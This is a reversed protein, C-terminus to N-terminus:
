RRNNLQQNAQNVQNVQSNIGQNAQDINQLLSNTSIEPFALLTLNMTFQKYFADYAAEFMFDHLDKRVVLKFPIVLAAWEEGNQPLFTPQLAFQLSLETHLFWDPVDQLGLVDRVTGRGVEWDMLGLFSDALKVNVLGALNNIRGQDFDYGMNMGFEFGEPVGSELGYTSLAGIALPQETSRYRFGLTTPQWTGGYLSFSGVDAATVPITQQTDGQLVPFIRRPQGEVNEPINAPFRLVKGVDRDTVQLPLYGAQGSFTFHNGIQSRFNMGVQQYRRANYDYGGTLNMTFEPLNVIGINGTLTNVQSLNLSDFRAFPVNNNEEDQVTRRYTLSPVFYSSFDNTYNVSGTVQYAADLTQYFRQEIKSGSFNVKNGLGLDYQKSGLSLDFLARSIENLAEGAIISEPELYRGLQSRFTMPFSKAFLPNFTFDLEPIKKIQGTNSSRANLNFFDSYLLKVNGWTQQQTLTVNPTLTQIWNGEPQTPTVGSLNSVYAFRTSLNTKDDIPVTLDLSSNLRDDQNLATEEINGTEFAERVSRRSNGNWDTKVNLNAKGLRTTVNVSRTQNQSITLAKSTEAPTQTGDAATTPQVVSITAEPIQTSQKLNLRTTVNLDQYPDVAFIQEDTLTMDFSRNKTRQAQFGTNYFDIDQYNLLVETHPLLLQKHTVAIKYDEFKNSLFNNVGSLATNEQLLRLRETRFVNATQQDTLIGRNSADIEFAEEASPATVLAGPNLIDDSVPLGFFFFRTISSPAAIWDHQFGFGMGKKEMAEVFWQGDHYENFRYYGKFRGFFGEVPNQGVDLDPKELGFGAGTLPLYMLPFWFTQNEYNLFKTNWGLVRDNPIFDLIEAEIAYHTVRKRMVEPAYPDDSLEKFAPEITQVHDCTTYFGNGMVVRAGDDYATMWDGQIYIEHDKNQLAQGVSSAPIVLYVDTADIRRLNVDYRFTKGKIRREGEKTTQVIEFQEDSKLTKSGSNYDLQETRIVYDKVKLEVNGMLRFLKEKELYEVKDAKYQVKLEEAHATTTNALYPTTVPWFACSLSLMILARLGSQMGSRIIKHPRM